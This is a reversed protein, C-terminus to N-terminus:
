PSPAPPVRCVALLDLSADLDREDLTFWSPETAHVLARLPPDWHDPPSAGLLAPLAQGRETETARLRDGHHVGLVRDVAFGARILEDALEAATFERTHFPNVPVESGPTFTLRNPTAILVSGDPATVRRLSALYGPIDHLHEIVQFSVTLDVEADELPLSMLEAAAAEIRPDSAAYTTAVHAIVTPDLDVGIVRGAGAEALMALGYGEGCGADLVCPARDPAPGGTAVPERPSRALARLQAAAFEYAVVHRAFWYREDPIGPLTREGTLVLGGAGPSGSTQPIPGRPLPDRPIPDADRPLM